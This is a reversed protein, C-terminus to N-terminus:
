PCCHPMAQNLGLTKTRLAMLDLLILGLKPLQATEERIREALVSSLVAYRRDQWLKGSSLTYAIWLDSGLQTQVLIKGEGEKIGWKWAPLRTSLDGESLNVETWELLTDFSAQDNAVLTLAFIMGGIDNATM